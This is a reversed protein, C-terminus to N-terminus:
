KREFPFHMVLYETTEVNYIKVYEIHQVGLCLEADVSMNFTIKYGMLEFMDKAGKLRQNVFDNKGLNDNALNVMNRMYNIASIEHYTEPAPRGGYYFAM